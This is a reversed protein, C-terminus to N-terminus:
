QTAWAGGVSDAFAVGGVAGVANGSIDAVTQIPAVIQTGNGLGFNGGTTLSGAEDAGNEAGAGGECSAFSVGGIASISNGCLSIATQIPAYVQTGNLIGYNGGTMVDGAKDAFAGRPGKAKKGNIHKANGHKARTASAKETVLASEYGGDPGGDPDDGGTSGGAGGVCSAEAAAGVAGISNGCASIITQLPAYIQTGNLVGYNDSTTMSSAGGATTAGAGGECGAFAVGGIAGISNGCVDVVTQIPVFVQTGNGIGFNGSTSADAHAAAQGFLVAGAALVGVSLSKRVWTKM